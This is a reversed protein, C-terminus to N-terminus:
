ELFYFNMYSPDIGNENCWIDFRERETAVFGTGDEITLVHTLEKIPRIYDGDKMFLRTELLHDSVDELSTSYENKLYDKMGQDLPLYGGRAAMINIASIEPANLQSPSWVQNDDRKLKRERWEICDYYWGAAEETKTPIAVLLPELSEMELGDNWPMSVDFYLSIKSWILELIMKASNYRTSSVAVWSNKDKISIFPLGNCKVLCFENSTVLTPISPVGVGRKGSSWAEEIIDLLAKRLGHETKYGDYGHIITIPAFTEQVLTYFLLAESKSLSHIGSYQDPANRGIIQAFHSRAVKINPEYGKELKNEFHESFKCRINGLHEFADQFDIKRLTKKVEFICLVKDIPYIYENTLGYKVGTGHVLMCDIQESLLYDGVKIFGSVVYLDLHKPISFDQDIGQKTIEEYASGLTPMHPMSIGCLKKTEEQIFLELLESAKSIMIM